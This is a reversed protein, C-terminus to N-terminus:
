NRQDQKLPDVKVTASATASPASVAPKVHVAPRGSRVNQTGLPRETSMITPETRVTQRQSVAITVVELPAQSALAPLAAESRQRDPSQSKNIWQGGFVGLVGLGTAAAFSALLKGLMGWPKPASGSVSSVSFDAPASTQPSVLKETTEQNQLPPVDNEPSYVRQVPNSKRLNRAFNEMESILRANAAIKKHAVQQLWRAVERHTSLAGLQEIALAMERATQFRSGQEFNLARMCIAALKTFMSDDPEDRNTREPVKIKGTLVLTMIRSAELGEFPRTGALLQWLVIGMAWIDARRDVDQGNMQEPAMYAIKGLIEGSHTTFARELTKAIGFDLLRTMGSTDVMINQPSVDRHVVCLPLGDANTLEHAAQLGDLVDVVMRGIHKLPIVGKALGFLQSVSEGSVYEMVLVPGSPAAVVDVVSVVNPHRIRSAIKAEAMAMAELREDRAASPHMVKLAVPRIFDLETTLWGLFVTAMGGSALATYPQYRGIAKLTVPATSDSDTLLLTM